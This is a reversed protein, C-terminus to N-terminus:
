KTQCRKRDGIMPEGSDVLVVAEVEYNVVIANETPHVDIHGPKVKRNTSGHVHKSFVNL